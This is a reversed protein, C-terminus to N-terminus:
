RLNQNSNKMMLITATITLGVCYHLVMNQVNDFIIFSKSKTNKIGHNPLYVLFCLLQALIFINAYQNARGALTVLTMSLGILGNGQLELRGRDCTETVSLWSDFLWMSFIWLTAPMSQYSHQPIISTILIPWLLAMISRITLSLIWNQDNYFHLSAKVIVVIGIVTYLIM